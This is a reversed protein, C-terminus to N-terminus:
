TRPLLSRVAFAYATGLTLYWSREEGTLVKGIGADLALRPSWQVRVGAGANWELEGAEEIPERAYVEGIVLMSRLPLARDVAIGALWRSLEEVGAEAEGAPAAGFTYRGNVHVRAFRFTRTMIGKGSLYAREPAFGGVPLVVDAALGLAPLTETEVNLNYLASVDIGALGLRREGSGHDVYATPFGVEVQLRPLLGYALEPEIAWQYRGGRQRELRLPAAQLEFANLEVPYADEILVPRGADTNYYDTQAMAASAQVSLALAPLLVAAWHWRGSRESGMGVDGRREM